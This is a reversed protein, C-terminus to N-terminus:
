KNYIGYLKEVNSQLLFESNSFQAQAVKIDPPHTVWHALKEAWVDDSENLSLPEVIELQAAIEEVGPIKSGLVPLGVSAAEIVAGPLGEWKSPFLMVSSHRLFPLVDSQEGLCVIDNELGHETAYQLIQQKVLETERGVFVLKASKDFRRFCALIKAQRLHNKMLDMRAVNIIVNEGQYDPIHEMWFDESLDIQPIEFGNYIVSFIPNSVWRSQWHLDLAGNCVALINTANKELMWKLLKDRTKRVFSAPSNVCTRLHAIRQKVGALRAMFLMAGSVLSVHSHVIDVKNRRILRIFRFPFLLGLKCYHVKGGLAVINNDLVGKEGSLVCFEFDIGKEQMATLLSLTRLEAGGRNMIGFLHLVKKRM